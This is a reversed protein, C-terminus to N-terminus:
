DKLAKADVDMNPPCIPVGKFGSEVWAKVNPRALVAHAAALAVPATATMMLTVEAEGFMFGIMVYSAALQFDTFCPKEGFFLTGPFEKYGAEVATFFQVVRSSLFKSATDKTKIDGMRKEVCQFTVDYINHMCQLAKFYAHQPPCYGRVDALAEMIAMTQSINVGDITAYPTAVVTDPLEGGLYDVTKYPVGSDELLM